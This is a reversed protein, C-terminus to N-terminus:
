FDSRKRQQGTRRPRLNRRRRTNRQAGVPHPQCRTQTQPYQFSQPRYDGMLRCWHDCHLAKEGSTARAAACLRQLNQDFAGGVRKEVTENPVTAAEYSPRVAADADLPVRGRALDDRFPPRCSRPVTPSIMESDTPPMMGSYRAVEAPIPVATLSRRHDSKGSARSCNRVKRL